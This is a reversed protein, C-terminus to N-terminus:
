SFYSWARERLRRLAQLLTFCEGPSSSSSLGTRSGGEAAAAGDPLPLSSPAEGTNQSHSRSAGGDEEEEEQAQSSPFVACADNLGRQARYLAGEERNDNVIWKRPQNIPTTIGSQSPMNNYDFVFSSIYGVGGLGGTGVWRAISGAWPGDVWAQAAEAFAELM